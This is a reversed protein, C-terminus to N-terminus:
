GNKELAKRYFGCLWEATAGIDFGARKVAESHDRRPESNKVTEMIQEAWQEHTNELPIFHMLETVKCEPAVVKDSTFSILGSAQAEVSVLPLGEYLSPLLFVDMAQYYEYVDSRNGVFVVSSYLGLREVQERIEHELSGTGVLMLKANPLKKHIASFIEILFKHNKPLEFRAVNGVVLSDDSIGYRERIRKHTEPNWKFRDSLIGNNIVTFATGEGYQSVGAANSCAFHYDGMHRLPLQWVYRAAGRIGKGHSNSHCHAITIRGAKKAEDLYIPASGRSHGHVIRYEPHECFFERWWKRYSGLTLPSIHPCRYIKSGLSLIEKDHACEEQLQEVFDFQYKERDIVRLLNMLFAETGGFNMQGVVHLVHIKDM